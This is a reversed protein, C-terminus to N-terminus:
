GFDAWLGAFWEADRRHAPTGKFFPDNDRALVILSSAGPLGLARAAAKHEDPGRPPRDTTQDNV